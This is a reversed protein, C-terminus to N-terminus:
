AGKVSVVSALPIALGGATLVTTGQDLKMGDVVAKMYPTGSISSGDKKLGTVSFNYTGTPLVNGNSDKGDWLLTGDGASTKNQALTRVTLGNADKIIISVQDAPESLNFNLQSPTGSVLAIQNGQAMVSKGIFSVASMSSSSNIADLMNKLNTNTNYSQEVQTMQALQAVMANSDQPALPDQNKMQTVFLKMFDDKSLGTTQKMYDSASMATTATSGTSNIM